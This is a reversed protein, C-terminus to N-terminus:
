FPAEEEGGNAEVPEMHGQMSAEEQVEENSVEAFETQQQIELRVKELAEPNDKLFEMANAKGKIRHKEKSDLPFTEHTYYAGGQHIIGLAFASNITAADSDFGVGFQFPIAIEHGETASQKTKDIKIIANYGLQVAKKRGDPMVIDGRNEKDYERRIYLRLHAAHQLGTGGKQVFGGKGSPDINQYVHGILFQVFRQEPELKAYKM